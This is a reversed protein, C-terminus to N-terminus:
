DEEPKIIKRGAILKGLECKNYWYGEKTKEQRCLSVFTSFGEENEVNENYIEFLNCDPYNEKTCKVEREQKPFIKVASLSSLQWFEDYAIRDQMAMLKDTDICLSKGCTFEATDALQILTSLTKEKALLNAEKYLERYKITIVFLGALIFFIVVAMLM